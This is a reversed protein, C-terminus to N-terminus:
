KKSWEDQTKSFVELITKIAFDLSSDQMILPPAFRVTVDHTEKALIGREQLLESYFRGHGAEKQIEIANLLGKGRVEKVVHKPLISLAKRFKEGLKFSRQPLDEEITISMATQSLACALSNGGFTSGHDGPKLVGIVDKSGVVASIPYFAGGLAKGLILVDPHCDEYQHAFLKGTRGMGTQIEDAICLINHKKCISSVQSLYGDHPVIIGAEGQIPEFLFGVTNPTIAKELADADGFPVAKFGGCFPGFEQKYQPESSFSVITSTRGHFNHDCVIIEASNLPIKKVVYGWKRAIKIATEVAEAGTNMPLAMDMGCMETIQKLWLGMQDNHFARSTLTIKQSQDMLTKQLRPHCHGQNVASYASLMDLYKKGDIDWVWEGFGKTLVVELPHYNHAGYKNALDIYKKAIESSKPNTM